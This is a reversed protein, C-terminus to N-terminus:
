RCSADDKTQSSDAIDASTGEADAAVAELFAENTDLLLAYDKTDPFLETMDVDREDVGDRLAFCQRMAYWTCAEYRDEKAICDFWSFKVPTGFEITVRPFRVRQGKQKIKEVNHVTCPLIDAHGMKAIMSAGGHLIPEKSGKGRRTGEPFIGVIEDRKLMKAARKVATLDATDRKIPFAGLRALVQGAFGGMNDFLDERAIFRIWERPRVAVWLFAPDLYSAHNSVVVVGSDQSMKTLVDRNLTRFRFALKFAVLLIVYMINGCWHPIEHEHVSGGLPRDFMEETSLFVSMVYISHARM